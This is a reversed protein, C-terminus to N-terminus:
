VQAPRGQPCRESRERAELPRSDDSRVRTHKSSDSMGLFSKLIKAAKDCEGPLSFSQMLSSGGAMARSSGEKLTLWDEESRRQTSLCASAAIVSSM